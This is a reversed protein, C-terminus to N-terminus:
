RRRRVLGLAALGLGVLAMSAPEPVSQLGSLDETISINDLAAGWPGSDAFAFSITLDTGTAYFSYSNQAWGMSGHSHGTTDFVFNQNSEGTVGLTLNKIVSGGDPNGSMDFYLTYYGGITFGGVLQSVGGPADGALDVSRSGESPQWYSGIYDIGGGTVTWNTLDPNGASVTLFSGPATGLEFGPNLIVPSAFMPTCALTLIVWNRIRM